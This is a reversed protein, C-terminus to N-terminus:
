GSIEKIHTTYLKNSKQTRGRIIYKEMQLHVFTGVDCAEDM